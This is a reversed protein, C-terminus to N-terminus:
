VEELRDAEWAPEDAKLGLAAAVPCGQRHAIVNNRKQMGFATHYIGCYGCGIRYDSRGPSGGRQTHQWVARLATRAENRERKLREVEAKLYEVESTYIELEDGM